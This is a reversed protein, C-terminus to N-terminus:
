HLTIKIGHLHPVSVTCREVWPACWIPEMPRLNYGQGCTCHHGFLRYLQTRLWSQIYWYPDNQNRQMDEQTRQPLKEVERRVGIGEKNGGWGGM